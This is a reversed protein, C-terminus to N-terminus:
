CSTASSSPIARGAPRPWPAPADALEAPGMDEAPTTILDRVLFVAAAERRVAAKDATKPLVLRAPEREPKKYRTFGYGGLAWGLGAATAAAAPMDEPLRYTAEPLGLPL